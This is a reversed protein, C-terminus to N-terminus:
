PRDDAPSLLELSPFWCVRMPSGAMVDDPESSRGKSVLGNGLGNILIDYRMGDNNNM